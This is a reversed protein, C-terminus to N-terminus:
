SALHAGRGGGFDELLSAHGDEERKVGDRNDDGANQNGAGDTHIWFEADDAFAVVGCGIVAAVARVEKVGFAAFVVALAAGGTASAVGVIGLTGAAAVASVGSALFGATATDGAALEPSHVFDGNEHGGVDVDADVAGEGVEAVHVPM